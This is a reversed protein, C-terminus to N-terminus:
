QRLGPLSSMLKSIIYINRMTFTNCMAYVCALQRFVYKALGVLSAQPINKNIFDIQISHTAKDTTSADAPGIRIGAEIDYDPIQLDTSVTYEKRNFM